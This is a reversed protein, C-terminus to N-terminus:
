EQYFHTLNVWKLITHTARKRPKMPLVKAVISQFKAVISVSNFEEVEELKRKQAM